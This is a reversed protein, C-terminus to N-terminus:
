IGRIGEWPVAPTVADPCLMVRKPCLSTGITIRPCLPADTTNTTRNPTNLSAHVVKILMLRSAFCFLMCKAKSEFDNDSVPGLMGFLITM